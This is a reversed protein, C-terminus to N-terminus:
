GLVVDHGSRQRSEKGCRVGRERALGDEDSEVGEDVPDDTRQASRIRILSGAVEVAHLVEAAEDDLAGAAVARDLELLAHLLEAAVGRDEGVGEATEARADTGDGRETGGGQVGAEGGQGTEAVEM